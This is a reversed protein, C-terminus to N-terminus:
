LAQYVYSIKYTETPYEPPVVSMHYPFRNPKYFYKGTLDEDYIFVTSSNTEYAKLRNNIHYMDYSYTHGSPFLAFTKFHSLKFFPSPNSDYTFTSYITDQPGYKINAVINGNEVTATDYISWTSHGIGNSLSDRKHGYIKGPLYQYTSVEYSSGIDDRNFVSDKIRQGMSNYYFYTLITDNVSPDPRETRYSLKYPLTDAGHYFYDYIDVYDILTASDILKVVRKNADYLLTWIM